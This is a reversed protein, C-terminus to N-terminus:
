ARERCCDSRRRRRDGSHYCRGAAAGPVVGGSPDTVTGTVTGSNISQAFAAPSIALCGCLVLVMQFRTSRHM